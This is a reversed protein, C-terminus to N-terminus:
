RLRPDVRVDPPGHLGPRLTTRFPIEYRIEKSAIDLQIARRDCRATERLKDKVGQLRFALWFGDFASM